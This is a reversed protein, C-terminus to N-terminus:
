FIYIVGSALFLPFFDFDPETVVRQFIGSNVVVADAGSRRHRGIDKGIHFGAVVECVCNKHATSLFMVLPVLLVVNEGLTVQVLACIKVKRHCALPEGSGVAALGKM